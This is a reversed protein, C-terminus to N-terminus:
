EDQEGSFHIMADINEKATRNSPDLSLVREFRQRAYDNLGLEYLIVATNNLAKIHDADIHLLASFSQFAMIFDEEKLHQVAKKYLSEVSFPNSSGSELQKKMLSIQNKLYRNEELLSRNQSELESLNRKTKEEKSQRKKKKRGQDLEKKLKELDRSLNQLEQKKVEIEDQYPNADAEFTLKLLDKMGLGLSKSKKSGM